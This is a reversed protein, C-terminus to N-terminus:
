ERGLISPDEDQGGVIVQRNRKSTPLLYPKDNHTFWDMYDLSTALEQTLFPERTPLYSYRCQWIEIYKKHFTPWDEKFRGWLDINHLDDLEKGLLKECTASWDVSLMPGTVVEGNIPLGLQLSVDEITITCEGYPLHFTHTELRWREVM